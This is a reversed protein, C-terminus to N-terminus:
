IRIVYNPQEPLYKITVVSGEELDKDWAKGGIRNDFSKGSALKAEVEQGYQTRYTVFYSYSTGSISGDSDTSVHEEVRSVVAETEIGGSKIERNRKATIVVGGIMVLLILAIGIYVM